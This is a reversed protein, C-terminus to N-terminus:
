DGRASEIAVRVGLVSTIAFDLSQNALRAIALLNERREDAAERIKDEVYEGRTGAVDIPQGLLLALEHRLLIREEGRLRALAGRADLQELRARLGALDKWHSLLEPAPLDAPDGALLRHEVANYHRLATLAGRVTVDSVAGGQRALASGAAAAAGLWFMLGLGFTRARRGFNEMVM